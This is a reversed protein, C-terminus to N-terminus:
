VSALLALANERLIRREIEEGLGLAEFLALTNGQDTWPSDTGFLVHDGPHNMILRTAAERGLYELSFSLEM